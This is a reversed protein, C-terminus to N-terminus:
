RIDSTPLVYIKGRFHLIRDIETWKSSRILKASTSKLAKAAKSVVDELEGNRTERWILKLLEREQGEVQVGELARVAFFNPTLLTLDRNENSSDSYPSVEALKWWSRSVEALKRQWGSWKRRARTETAEETTNKVSGV